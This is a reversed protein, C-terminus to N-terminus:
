GIIEISITKLILTTKTYFRVPSHLGDYPQRAFLVKRMQNTEQKSAIGLDFMM